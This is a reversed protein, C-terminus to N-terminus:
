TVAAVAIVALAGGLAGGLAAGRGGSSGGSGGGGASATKAGSLAVSAGSASAGASTKVSSMQTMGVEQTGGERTGGEQTGGAGSQAAVASTVGGGTGCESVAPIPFTPVGGEGQTYTATEGAGDVYVGPPDGDDGVCDQYVGEWGIGNSTLFYCGMEDYTTPCYLADSCARVCYTTSSIM